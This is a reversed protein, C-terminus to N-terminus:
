FQKSNSLNPAHAHEQTYLDLAGSGLSRLRRSRSGHTHRRMRRPWNLLLVLPGTSECNIHAQHCSRIAHTSGLLGLVDDSQLAAIEILGAVTLIPIRCRPLPM